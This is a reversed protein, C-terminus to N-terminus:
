SRPHIAIELAGGNALNFRGPTPDNPKAGVAIRLLRTAQGTELVLGSSRDDVSADRDPEVYVHGGFVGLYRNQVTLVLRRERGGVLYVILVFRGELRATTGANKICVELTRPGRTGPARQRWEGSEAVFEGRETDVHVSGGNRVRITPRDEHLLRKVLAVGAGIAGAVALGTKVRPSLSINTRM